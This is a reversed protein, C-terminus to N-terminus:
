GHFGIAGKTNRMNGAGLAIGSLLFANMEYGDTDRIM